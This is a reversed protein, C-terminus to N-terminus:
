RTSGLATSPGQPKLRSRGFRFQSTGHGAAGGNKRLSLKRYLAAKADPGDLDKSEPESSRLANVAECLIVATRLAEGESLIVSSKQM